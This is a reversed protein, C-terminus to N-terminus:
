ININPADSNPDAKSYGYLSLIAASITAPAGLSSTDFLYISRGLQRYFGLIVARWGVSGPITSSPTLYSSSDNFSDGADNRLTAWTTTSTDEWVVGDVTNTEVNADPYKTLTSFGFSLEPAFRDAILDWVHCALWVYYLAHYLRKAFKPHTRFDAAYLDEAIQYHYCAPLLRVIEKDPPCDRHIRLVWRFWKRVYPTNCLWLLRKQNKLFWYTNLM